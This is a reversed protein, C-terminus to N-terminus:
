CACLRARPSPLFDLLRRSAEFPSVSCAEDADEGLMLVLHIYRPINNAEKRRVANKLESSFDKVTAEAKLHFTNTEGSMWSATCDLCCDDDGNGNASQTIFGTIIPAGDGPIALSSTFAAQFDPRQFIKSPIVKKAHRSHLRAVRLLFDPDSQLEPSAFELANQHLRVAAMVIEPDARFRKSAFELALGRNGLAEEVITRDNQLRSSAFALAMGDRSVAEHVVDFDDKLDDHVYELSTPWHQVSILALDKKESINQGSYSMPPPAPSGSPCLQLGHLAIDEDARFERALFKFLRPCYTVLALAKDKDKPYTLQMIQSPDRSVRELWAADVTQRMM